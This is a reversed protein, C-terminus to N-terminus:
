RQWGWAEQKAPIEALRCSSLNFKQLHTHTATPPYLACRLLGTSATEVLIGRLAPTM